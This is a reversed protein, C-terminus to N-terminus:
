VLAGRELQVGGLPRGSRRQSIPTEYARPSSAVVIAHSTPPRVSRLGPHLLPQHVLTQAVTDPHPIRCGGRRHDGPHTARNKENQERSLGGTAGRCVPVPRYSGGARGGRSRRRISLCFYIKLKSSIGRFSCEKPLVSSLLDGGDM